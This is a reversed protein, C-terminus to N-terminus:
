RGVAHDSVSVDLLKATRGARELVKAKNRHSFLFIKEGGGLKLYANYEIHVFSSSSMTRPTFIKQTIRAAHISIGDLGSYKQWHGTKLFFFAYYERISRSRQDVETGEYATLIFMAIVILVVATITYSLVVMLGAFLFIGGLILFHTPFLRGAKIDVTNREM